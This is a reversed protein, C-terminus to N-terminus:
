ADRGVTERHFRAVFRTQGPMSSGVVPTFQQIRTPRLTLGPIGSAERHFKMAREYADVMKAGHAVVWTEPSGPQTLLFRYIQM